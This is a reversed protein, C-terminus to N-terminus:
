KKIRGESEALAIEAYRKEYEEGSMRAIESTRWIRGGGPVSSPTDDVTDLGLNRREELRAEERAKKIDEKAIKAASLQIRKMKDLYNVSNEAWDLRKDKPDIGLSTILENAATTFAEVFAEEAQIRQAQVGNQQDYQDRAEYDALKLDRASEPDLELLKRERASVQQQALQVRRNAELNVRAIQRDAVSQFHRELRTTESAMKAAVAAEIKADLGDPQEEAGEGAELVAGDKSESVAGETEIESVMNGEKEFHEM